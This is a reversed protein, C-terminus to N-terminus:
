PYTLKSEILLLYDINEIFNNLSNYIHVHLAFVDILSVIVPHDFSQIITEVISCYNDDLLELSPFLPKEM